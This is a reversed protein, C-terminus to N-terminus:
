YYEFLWVFDGNENSAVLETPYNSDDSTYKYNQRDIVNPTTGYETYIFIDTLNSFHYNSQNLKEYAVFFPNIMELHYSYNNERDELRESDRLVEKIINGKEDYTYEKVNFDDTGDDGIIKIIRGKDDLLHVLNYTYNYSLQATISVQNIEYTLDIVFETENNVIKKVQILQSQDDYEYKLTYYESTVITLRELDDYVYTKSENNYDFQTLFGDEYHFDRQAFAFGPDTSSFTKLMKVIEPSEEPEKTPEDEANEGIETEPPTQSESEPSGDENTSCNILLILLVISIFFKKLNM